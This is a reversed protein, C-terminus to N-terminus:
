VLPDVTSNSVVTNAIGYVGTSTVTNVSISSMAVLTEYQIRGARGGTGETRLVWGSHTVAPFINNTDAVGTATNGQISHTETGTFSPSFSINAGGPTNSIAISTTNAYTVYYVSNGTLPSVPTNGTPVKYTLGDGVQWFSNATTLLIVDFTSALAGTMAVAGPALNTIPTNALALTQTTALSVVTSNSYAIYYYTNGTLPSLATNSTPVRYLVKQGQTPFYTNATTIAIFTNSTVGTTNASFTQNASTPEFSTTNANVTIAAPAAITVTPSSIYGSGATSILLSDIRGPNTTTNAHANVVASTGGNTATLTVTANTQYGSGGFTVSTVAINGGVATGNSAAALNYANVAFVGVAKNAIFAGMTVNGFMAADISARSGPSTNGFHTNPSQVATVGTASGGAGKVLAYTGIPAGNSSEKTTTSNATVSQDNRGWQAM